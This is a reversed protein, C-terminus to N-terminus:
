FSLNFNGVSINNPFPSVIFSVINLSVFKNEKKLATEQDM